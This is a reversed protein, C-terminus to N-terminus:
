VMHTSSAMFISFLTLASFAPVTFSTRTSAPWDTPGPSMMAMMSYGFPRVCRGSDGFGFGVGFGIGVGIGVGVGVGVGVFVGVFVCWTM